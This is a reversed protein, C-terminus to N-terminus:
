ENSLFDGQLKEIKYFADLNRKFLKAPRHGVGELIEETEIVYDAMKRRFNPVILKRGQVIEFANQLQALTFKEPMLDFVPKGNENVENQLRLFACLIIKAHDFAINDCSVIDYRVTEHYNVYNRTELVEATLRLEEQEAPFHERSLTILYSTTIHAQENNIERDARIKEVSVSFWEAERADTAAHVKYNEGNVLTLFAHSIIWGRPDREPESFIDFPRLYADKIGTEELLERRATETTSENKQCFGGPLAWCDKYPHNARKVMLLKLRKEPDKRYNKVGGDGTGMVAFVVMDATVSP